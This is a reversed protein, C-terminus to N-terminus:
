ERGKPTMNEKDSTGYDEMATNDEDKVGEGKMDSEYIRRLSSIWDNGASKLPESMSMTTLTVIAEMMDLAAKMGDKKYVRQVASNSPISTALSRLFTQREDTWYTPGQPSILEELPQRTQPGTKQIETAAEQEPPSSISYRRSSIPSKPTHSQQSSNNSMQKTSSSSVEPDLFRHEPFTEVFKGQGGSATSESQTITPPKVLSAATGFWFMHRAKGLPPSSFAPDGRVSSHNPAERVIGHRPYRLPGAVPSIRRPLQRAPILRGAPRYIPGTRINLDEPSGSKSQELIVKRSPPPTDLDPTSTRSESEERALVEVMPGTLTVDIRFTMILTMVAMSMASVKRSREECVDCRGGKRLVKTFRSHIAM